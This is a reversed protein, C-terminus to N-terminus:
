ECPTTDFIFETQVSYTGPAWWPSEVGEYAYYKDGVKGTQSTAILRTHNDLWATTFSAQKTSYGAVRLLRDNATGCLDVQTWEVPQIYIPNDVSSGPEDAANAAPAGAITLGALIALGLAFRRAITKM